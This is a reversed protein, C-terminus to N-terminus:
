PKEALTVVGYRYSGFVVILIGLANVLSVHDGFYATGLAVLLVQKINAAICLTLSSTVKNAIFSSINLSFSLVGTLLVVQPASSLVLSEWKACIASVEGNLLSVLGLQLLALPCMKYLLDMEALKLEGTLLEGGMVAKLAALVVCLGTYFVGAYSYYM